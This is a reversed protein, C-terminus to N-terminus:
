VCCINAHSLLQELQGEATEVVIPGRRGSDLNLCEVSECYVLNM